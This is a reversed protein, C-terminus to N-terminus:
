TYVKGVEAEERKPHQPIDGAWSRACRASRSRGAAARAIFDMFRVSPQLLMTSQDGISWLVAEEGGGGIDCNPAYEYWGSLSGCIGSRTPPCGWLVRRRKKLANAMAATTTVSKWRVVRVTTCRPCLWPCQTRVVSM